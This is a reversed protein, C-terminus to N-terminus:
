GPHGASPHDHVLNIIGCKVENIPPVCVKGEPTIHNTASIRFNEASIVVVGQNDEQVKDM